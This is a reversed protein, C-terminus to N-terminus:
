WYSRGRIAALLQQPSGKDFWFACAAIYSFIAAKMGVDGPSATKTSSLHRALDHQVNLMGDVMEDCGVPLEFHQQLLQAWLVEDLRDQLAFETGFGIASAYAESTPIFPRPASSRM